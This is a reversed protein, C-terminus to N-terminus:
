TNFMDRFLKQLGLSEQTKWERIPQKDPEDPTFTYDSLTVLARRSAGLAASAALARDNLHKVKLILAGRFITDKGSNKRRIKKLLKEHYVIDNNYGAISEEINKITERLLECMTDVFNFTLPLKREIMQDFLDAIIKDSLDRQKDQVDGTQDYYEKAEPDNLIAFAAAVQDFAERKGNNHDPHTKKALRRYAQKLEDKDFPEDRDLGLVEYPDFM